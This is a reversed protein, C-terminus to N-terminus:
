VNISKWFNFEEKLYENSKPTFKDEILIIMDKICKMLSILLSFNKKYSTSFMAMIMDDNAKSISLIDNIRIEKSKETLDQLIKKSVPNRSKNLATLLKNIELLNVIEIQAENLVIKLKKANSFDPDEMNVILFYGLIYKPSDFWIIIDFDQINDLIKFTIISKKDQNKKKLKIKHGTIKEYLEIFHPDIEATTGLFDLEIYEM